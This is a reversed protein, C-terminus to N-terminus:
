ASETEETSQGHGLVRREEEMRRKKELYKEYRCINVHMSLFSIVTVAAPIVLWIGDANIFCVSLMGLAFYIKAKKIYQM